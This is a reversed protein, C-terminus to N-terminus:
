CYFQLYNYLHCHVLVVLWSQCVVSGVERWLPRGVHVPCYSEFLFFYRTTHGLRPEVGLRVSQSVTLRLTVKVQCHTWNLEVLSTLRSPTITRNVTWHITSYKDSLLSTFVSASSNGNNLATVLCRSTFVSCDPTSKAHLSKNLTYILSPATIAQLESDHTYTTLLDM